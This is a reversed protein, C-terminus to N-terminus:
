GTRRKLFAARAADLTDYTTMQPQDLRGDPREILIAVGPEQLSGGDAIIPLPNDSWASPSFRWGIIQHVEDWVYRKAQDLRLVFLRQGPAAPMKVSLLFEIREETTEIEGLLDGSGDLLRYNWREQAGRPAPRGPASREVRAIASVAVYSGRDTQIFSLLHAEM